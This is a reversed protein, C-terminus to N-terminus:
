ARRKFAAGQAEVNVLTHRRPMVCINHSFRLCLRPAVRSLYGSTPRQPYSGVALKETAGSQGQKEVHAVCRTTRVQLESIIM